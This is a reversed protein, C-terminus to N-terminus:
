GDWLIIITGKVWYPNFLANQLPQVSSDKVPVAQWMSQLHSGTICCSCSSQQPAKQAQAGEWCHGCREWHHEELTHLRPGPGGMIFTHHHSEQPKQTSCGQIKTVTGRMQPCWLVTSQVHHRQTAKWWVNKCCTWCLETPSVVGHNLSSANWTLFPGWHQSCQRVLYDEDPLM